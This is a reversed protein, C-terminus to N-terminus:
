VHARGIQHEIITDPHEALARAVGARSPRPKKTVPDPLNPKQGKSPPLSSNDPTKAPAALKTELEAVRATLASIQQAQAEIQAYQALVLASLDDRTFNALAARNM